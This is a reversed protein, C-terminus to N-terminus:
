RTQMSMLSSPSHAPVEELGGVVLFDSPELTGASTGPITMQTDSLGEPNLPKCVANKVPLTPHPTCSLLCTPQLLLHFFASREETKTEKEEEWVKMKKGGDGKSEWETVKLCITTSTFVFLALKLSQNYRNKWGDLPSLLPWKIGDWQKLMRDVSRNRKINEREIM